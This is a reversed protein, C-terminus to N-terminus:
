FHGHALDARDEEAIEHNALLANLLRRGRDDLTYRAAETIAEYQVSSGWLTHRLALTAESERVGLLGVLVLAMEAEVPPWAMLCNGIVAELEPRTRLCHTGVDIQGRGHSKVFPLLPQRPM